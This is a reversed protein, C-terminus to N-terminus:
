LNRRNHEYDQLCYRPDLLNPLGHCMGNYSSFQELFFYQFKSKLRFKLSYSILQEEAGEGVLLLFDQLYM